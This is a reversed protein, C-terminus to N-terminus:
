TFIKFTPRDLLNTFPREQNIGEHINQRSGKKPPQASSQLLDRRQLVVEKRPVTPHCLKLGETQQQHSPDHHRILPYNPSCTPNNGELHPLINGHPNYPWQLSRLIESAQTRGPVYAVSKKTHVLIREVSSTGGWLCHVM